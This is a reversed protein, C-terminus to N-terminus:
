HGAGWSSVPRQHIMAAALTGLMAMSAFAVLACAKGPMDLKHTALSSSICVSVRYKSTQCPM